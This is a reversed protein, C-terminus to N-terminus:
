KIAVGVKREVYATILRDPLINLNKESNNRIYLNISLLGQYDYVNASCAITVEENNVIIFGEGNEYLVNKEDVTPMLFYNDYCGSLSVLLLISILLYIKKM